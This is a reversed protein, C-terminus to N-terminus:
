YFIFTNINCQCHSGMHINIAGRGDQPRRAVPGGRPAPPPVPGDDPRGNPVPPPGAVGPVPPPPPVAENDPGGPVPVAPPEAVGPFPDLNNINCNNGM